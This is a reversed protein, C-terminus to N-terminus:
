LELVIDRVDSDGGGALVGGGGCFVGQVVYGGQM